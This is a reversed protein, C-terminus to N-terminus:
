RDTSAEPPLEVGPLGAAKRKANLAALGTTSLRNWRALSASADARAKAVAAEQGATPTVDAGQM